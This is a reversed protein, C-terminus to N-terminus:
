ICFELSAYRMGHDNVLMQSAIAVNGSTTTTPDQMVSKILNHKHLQPACINSFRIYKYEQEHTCPVHVCMIAAYMCTPPEGVTLPIATTQYRCATESCVKLKHPQTPCTSDSIAGYNLITRCSCKSWASRVKLVIDYESV